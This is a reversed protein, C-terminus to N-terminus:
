SANRGGQSWPWALADMKRRLESFQAPTLLRMAAEAITRFGDREAQVEALEAKLEAVVDEEPKVHGSGDDFAMRRGNGAWGVAVVATV